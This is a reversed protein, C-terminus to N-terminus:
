QSLSAGVFLGLAVLAQIITIMNASNTILREAKYLFQRRDQKDPLQSIVMLGATKMRLHFCEPNVMVCEILNADSMEQLQKEFVSKSLQPYM